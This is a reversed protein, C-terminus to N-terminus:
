TLGEQVPMPPADPAAAEAEAPEPAAAPVAAATSPPRVRWAARQVAKQMDPCETAAGVFDVGARDTFFRCKAMFDTGHTVSLM